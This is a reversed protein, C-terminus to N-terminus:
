KWLVLASTEEVMYREVAARTSRAAEEVEAETIHRFTPVGAM